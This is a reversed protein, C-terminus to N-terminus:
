VTPTLTRGALDRRETVQTALIEQSESPSLILEITTTSEKEM